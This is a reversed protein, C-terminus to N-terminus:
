PKNPFHEHAKLQIKISFSFFQAWRLTKKKSNEYLSVNFKILLYVVNM